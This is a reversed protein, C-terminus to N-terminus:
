WARGFYKRLDASVVKFLVEIRILLKSKIVKKKGRKHCAENKSTPCPPISNFNKTFYTTWKLSFCLCDLYQRELLTLRWRYVRCYKNKLPLGSVVASSALQWCNIGFYCRVMCFQNWRSQCLISCPQWKLEHMANCFCGCRATSFYRAGSRRLVKSSKLAQLVVLQVTTTTHHRKKPM